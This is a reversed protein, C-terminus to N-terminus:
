VMDAFKQGILLRAERAGLLTEVCEHDLRGKAADSLLETAVDELSWAGKYPRLNSLADYVDAVAV